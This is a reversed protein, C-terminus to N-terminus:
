RDTELYALRYKVRRHKGWRYHWFPPKASYYIQHWPSLGEGIIDDGDRWPYDSFKPGPGDYHQKQIRNCCYFAIRDSATRRMMDYYKAIVPETMEQMSAINIALDIPAGKLLSVDDARLAILRAHPDRLALDREKIDRPLVIEVEPLFQPPNDPLQSASGM